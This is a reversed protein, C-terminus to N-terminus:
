ACVGIRSYTGAGVSIGEAGTSAGTAVSTTTFIESALAAGTNISYCGKTVIV